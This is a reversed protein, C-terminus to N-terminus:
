TLKLTKVKKEEGGDVGIIGTHRSTALIEGKDYVYHM